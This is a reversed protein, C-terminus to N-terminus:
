KIAWIQVVKYQHWPEMELFALSFVLFLLKISIDMIIFMKIRESKLWSTYPVLTHLFIIHYLIYEIISLSLLYNKISFYIYVSLTRIQSKDLTLSNRARLLRSIQLNRPQLQVRVWFWETRLRVSLWKALSILHSLQNLCSYLASESQFAYTVHCSCVILLLVLKLCNLLNLKAAFTLLLYFM